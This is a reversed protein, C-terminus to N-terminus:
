LRFFFLPIILMLFKMWLKHTRNKKDGQVM